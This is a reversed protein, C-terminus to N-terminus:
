YTYSYKEFNKPVDMSLHMNKVQQHMNVSIKSKLLVLSVFLALVLIGGM